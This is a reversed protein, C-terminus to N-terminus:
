PAPLCSDCRQSRVGDVGGATPGPAPLLGL